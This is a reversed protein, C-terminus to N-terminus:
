KIEEFEADEVDKLQMKGKKKKSSSATNAQNPNGGKKSVMMIRRFAKFLFYFLAILLITKFLGAIM